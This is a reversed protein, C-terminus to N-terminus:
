IRACNPRRCVRPITSSAATAATPWTGPSTARGSRIRISRTTCRCFATATSRACFAMRPEKVLFAEQFPPLARDAWDLYKTRFQQPNTGAIEAYDTDFLDDIRVEGRAVAQEFIRTLAPGAEM